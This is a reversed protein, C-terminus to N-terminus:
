QLFYAAPKFIDKVQHGMACRTRTMEHCWDGEKRVWFLETSLEQDGGLDEGKNKHIFTPIHSPSGGKWVETGSGEGPLLPLGSPIQVTSVAMGM